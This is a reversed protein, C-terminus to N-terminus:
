EEQTETINASSATITVGNTTAATMTPIIDVANTAVIGGTSADVWGTDTLSVTTAVAPRGLLALEHADSGIWLRMVGEGTGTDNTLEVLAVDDTAAVFELWQAGTDRYSSGFYKTGPRLSM